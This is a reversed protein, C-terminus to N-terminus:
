AVTWSTGGSDVLSTPLGGPAPADGGFAFVAGDRLYVRAANSISSAIVVVDIGGLTDNVVRESQLREVPYARSEGGQSLGLVIAKTELADSREWVPFMTSASLGGMDRARAVGATDYDALM